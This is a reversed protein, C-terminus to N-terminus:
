CAFHAIKCEFDGLDVICDRDVKETVERVRTMLGEAELVSDKRARSISGIESTTFLRAFGDACDQEECTAVAKIVANCFLPVTFDPAMPVKAIADFIAGSVKRQAPM